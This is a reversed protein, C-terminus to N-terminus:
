LFLTRGSKSLFILTLSHVTPRHFPPALTGALRGMLRHLSAVSSGPLRFLKHPLLSALVSAGGCAKLFDIRKSAPKDNDSTPMALNIVVEFGAQRLAAFNCPKPMGSTALRDDISLFNRIPTM